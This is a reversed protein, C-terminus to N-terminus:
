HFLSIISLVTETAASPLMSVPGISRWYGLFLAYCAHQRGIQPSPRGDTQRRWPLFSAWVFLRALRLSMRAQMRGAATVYRLRPGFLRIRAIRVDPDKPAEPSCDGSAVRGGPNTHRPEKQAFFSAILGHKRVIEPFRPVDSLFARFAVGGCAQWEKTLACRVCLPM